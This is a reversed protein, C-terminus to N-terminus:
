TPHPRRSRIWLARSSDDTFRRIAPINLDAFKHLLAKSSDSRTLGEGFAGSAYAELINRYILRSLAQGLEQNVAAHGRGLAVNSSVPRKCICIFQLAPLYREVSPNFGIATRSSGQRTVRWESSIM